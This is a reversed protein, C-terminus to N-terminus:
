SELEKIAAAPDDDHIARQIRQPARQLIGTSDSGAKLFNEEHHQEPNTAV